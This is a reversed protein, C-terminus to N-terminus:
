KLEFKSKESLNYVYIYACIEFESYEWGETSGIEWGIMERQGRARPITRENVTVAHFGHGNM